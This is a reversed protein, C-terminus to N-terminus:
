LRILLLLAEVADKVEASSLNKGKLNKVKAKAADVIPNSVVTADPVEELSLTFSPNWYHRKKEEQLWANREADTKFQEEWYKSGDPNFIKLVFM